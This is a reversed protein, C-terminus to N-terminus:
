TDNLFIWSGLSSKPQHESWASQDPLTRALGKYRDTGPWEHKAWDQVEVV